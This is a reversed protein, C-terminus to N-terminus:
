LDWSIFIDTGINDLLLLLLLLLLLIHQAVSVIIKGWGMRLYHKQEVTIYYSFTTSVDTSYVPRLYWVFAASSIAMIVVAGSGM